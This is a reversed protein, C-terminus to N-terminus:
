NVLFSQNRARLFRPSCRSSSPSISRLCSSCAKAPGVTSAEVLSEALTRASRRQKGAGVAGAGRAEDFDQSGITDDNETFPTHRKFLFLLQPLPSSPKDSISFSAECATCRHRSSSRAAAVAAPTPDSSERKFLLSSTRGM